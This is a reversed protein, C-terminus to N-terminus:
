TIVITSNTSCSEGHSEKHSKYMSVSASNSCTWNSSSSEKTLAPDDEALESLETLM